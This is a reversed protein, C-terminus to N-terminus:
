WHKKRKDSKKGPDLRGLKSHLKAKPIRKIRKHPTYEDRGYTASYKKHYKEHYIKDDKKQSPMNKKKSKRTSVM